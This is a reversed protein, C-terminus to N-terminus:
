NSNELPKSLIISTVKLNRVVDDNLNVKYGDSIMARIARANFLFELGENKVIIDFVGNEPANPSKKFSSDPYQSLVKSLADGVQVYKTTLLCVDDVIVSSVVGNILQLTFYARNKDVVFISQITIDSNGLDADPSPAVEIFALYNSVNFEKSLTNVGLMESPVMINSCSYVQSSNLLASFLIIITIFQKM